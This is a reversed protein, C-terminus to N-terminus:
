RDAIYYVNYTNLSVIYPFIIYLICIITLSYTFRFFAYFVRTLFNTGFARKEFSVFFLFFVRLFIRERRQVGLLFCCCCTSSKLVEIKSRQRPSLNATRRMRVSRLSISRNTPLARERERVLTLCLLRRTLACGVSSRVADITSSKKKERIYM